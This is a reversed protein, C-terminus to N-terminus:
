RFDERPRSDLHARSGSAGAGSTDRHAGGDRHGARDRGQDGLLAGRAILVVGLLPHQGAEGREGGALEGPQLCGGPIRDLRPDRRGPLPPDLRRGQVAQGRRHPLQGAPQAAPAHRSVDQWAPRQGPGRAVDRVDVGALFQRGQEGLGVATMVVRLHREPVQHHRHQEARDVGAAQPGGLGPQQAEAVDVDLGAHQCDAVALPALVPLDGDARRQAFPQSAVMGPHGPSGAPVPEEGARRPPRQREGVDVLVEAPEQPLGANGVAAPAVARSDM